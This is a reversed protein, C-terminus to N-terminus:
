HTYLGLVHQIYKHKGAYGHDAMCDGITERIPTYDWYMDGLMKQIRMGDGRHYDELKELHGVIEEVKVLLDDEQVFM